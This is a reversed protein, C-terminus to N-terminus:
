SILLNAYSYSISHYKVATFFPNSSVQALFGGEGDRPPQKTVALATESPQIGTGNSTHIPNGREM